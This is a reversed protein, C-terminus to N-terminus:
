LILIVLIGYIMIYNQAIGYVLIMINKDQLIVITKIVYILINMIMITFWIIKEKIIIM